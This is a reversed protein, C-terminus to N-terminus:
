IQCDRNSSKKNGYYKRKCLKFFVSQKDPRDSSSCASKYPCTDREERFACHNCPFYKGSPRVCLNEYGKVWVSYGVRTHRLVEILSEASIM